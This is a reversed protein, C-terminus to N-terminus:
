CGYVRLRLYAFSLRSVSKRDFDPHGWGSKGYWPQDQGTVSKILWLVKISRFSVHITLKGLGEELLMGEFFIDQLVDVVDVDPVKSYLGVQADKSKNGVCIKEYEPRFGPEIADM